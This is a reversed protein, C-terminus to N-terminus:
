KQRRHNHLSNFALFAIDRIRSCTKIELREYNQSIRWISLPQYILLLSFNPQVTQRDYMQVVSPFYIIEARTTTTGNHKEWRCVGACACPYLWTQDSLTMADSSVFVFPRLAVVIGILTLSAILNAISFAKMAICLYIFIFYLYHCISWCCCSGLVEKNDMLQSFTALVKSM